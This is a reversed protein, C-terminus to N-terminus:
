HYTSCATKKHNYVTLVSDGGLTLNWDNENM